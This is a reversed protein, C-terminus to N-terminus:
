EPLPLDKHPHLPTDGVAQEQVRLPPLHTKHVPHLGEERVRVRAERSRAATDKNYKCPPRSRLRPQTHSNHPTLDCPRQQHHQVRRQTDSPPGQTDRIPLRVAHQHRRFCGQLNLIHNQATQSPEEWTVSDQVDEHAQRQVRRGCPHHKALPGRRQGLNGTCPLFSDTNFANLHANCTQAEANDWTGQTTVYKLVFRVGILGRNSGM